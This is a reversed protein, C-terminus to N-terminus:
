GGSLAVPLVPRELWALLARAARGRHSLGDKEEPTLEAMTRGDPDGAPLFAPDYGFGGNGRPGTALLGECVGEFAWEGGDPSAIVLVCVYQVRRDGSVPIQRLLQALNEEDTADPGAFRASRVGPAGSLAMAEIGSDDALAVRGSARAARHAKLSANAAFTAGTEPGLEVEPAVPVLEHPRLLAGLERLKHPNRSALLLRM